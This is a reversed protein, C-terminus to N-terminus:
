VGARRQSIFQDVSMKDSDDIWADLQHLQWYKRHGNQQGPLPFHSAPDARYDAFEQRSMERLEGNSTRKQLADLRLLDNVTLWMDPDSEATEEIPEASVTQEATDTEADVPFLSDAALEGLLRFITKVKDANTTM